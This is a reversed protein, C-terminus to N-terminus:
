QHTQSKDGIWLREITLADYTQDEEGPIGKFGKQSSKLDVASMVILVRDGVALPATDPRRGDPLLVRARSADVKLTLGAVVLQARVGGRGPYSDPTKVTLVTREVATIRGQIVWCRPSVSNGTARKDASPSAVQANLWSVGALLLGVTGLSFRSRRRQSHSGKASQM